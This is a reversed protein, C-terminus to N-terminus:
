KCINITVQRKWFYRLRVAYEPSLKAKLVILMRPLSKLLTSWKSTCIANCQAFKRKLLEKVDPLSEANMLEEIITLRDTELFIDSSVDDVIFSSRVPSNYSNSVPKFSKGRQKIPVEAPAEVQRLSVILDVYYNLANCNEILVNSYKDYLEIIQSRLLGCRAMCEVRKKASTCLLHLQAPNGASSDAELAQRSIVSAQGIDNSLEAEIAEANATVHAPDIKIPWAKIGSSGRREMLKKVTQVSQEAGVNLVDVVKSVTKSRSPAVPTKDLSNNTILPNHNIYVSEDKNVSSEAFLTTRATERGDHESKNNALMGKLAHFTSKVRTSSQRGVVKSPTKLVDAAQNTSDNSNEILTTTLFNAPKRGIGHGSNGTEEGRPIISELASVVISKNELLLRGEEPFPLISKYYDDLLKAGGYFLEKGAATCGAATLDIKGNMNTYKDPTFVACQPDPLVQQSIGSGDFQSFDVSDLQISDYWTVMDEDQEDEINDSYIKEPLKENTKKNGGRM